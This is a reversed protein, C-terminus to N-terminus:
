EQCEELGLGCCRNVEGGDADLTLDVKIAPYLAIIGDDLDDFLDASFKGVGADVGHDTNPSPPFLQQVWVTLV